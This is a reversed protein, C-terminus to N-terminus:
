INVRCYLVPIIIISLDLDNRLFFNSMFETQLGAIGLFLHTLTVESSFSAHALEKAITLAQQVRPTFNPVTEM